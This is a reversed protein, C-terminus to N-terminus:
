LTLSSTMSVVCVAYLYSVGYVPGNKIFRHQVLPLTENLIPAVSILYLIRRMFGYLDSVLTSPELEIFTYSLTLM